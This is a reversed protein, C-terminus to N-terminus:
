RERLGEAQLKVQVPNPQLEAHDFVAHEEGIDSLLHFVKSEALGGVEQDVQIGKKVKTSIAFKVDPREIIREDDNEPLHEKPEDMLITVEERSQIEAVKNKQIGAIAEKEQEKSGM